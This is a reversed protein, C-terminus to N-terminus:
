ADGSLNMVTKLEDDCRAFMLYYRCMDVRAFLNLLNLWPKKYLQHKPDIWSNYLTEMQLCFYIPYKLMM